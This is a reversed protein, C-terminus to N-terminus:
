CSDKTYTIVRNRGSNKAEYLAIDANQIAQEIANDCEINVQTVGSSVTIKIVKSNDLVIEMDEVSKRVKEAVITAGDIDTNPLLVIFEEGGFRAIIDSSRFYKKLLNTFSIIVRDGVKHGYTDNITKFKDLDFMIISITSAERRSLALIRESIESFYRRNFVGTMSDITALVRMEEESQKLKKIMMQIQLQTRVRALLEKVKVPKNIYDVGGVDYAKEISDEDTKATLFIIPIKETDPDIKLQICVEYGSMDPMSIDLLILDPKAEKALSIADEGNDARLVIYYDELIAELIDLNIEEDDVLLIKEKKSM